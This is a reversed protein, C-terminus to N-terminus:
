PGLLHEMCKPMVTKTWRSNDPYYQARSMKGLHPYVLISRKNQAAELRELAPAAKEISEYM